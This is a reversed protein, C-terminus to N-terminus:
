QQLDTEGYLILQIPTRVKGGAKTADLLAGPSLSFLALVELTKSKTGTAIKAIAADIDTGAVSVMRVAFPEGGQIEVEGIVQHGGKVASIKQPEINVDLTAFNGIFGKTSMTIQVVDGIKKATV